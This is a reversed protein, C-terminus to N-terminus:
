NVSFNRKKAGHKSNYYQEMKSNREQTIKVPPKLLDFTTRIKRGLITEAPSLKSPSSENPTIRYNFLFTDLNEDITGDNSLKKLTRKLTDVSREAQGNSMPSYPSTRIHQIGNSNFFRQVCEATFHTGNDSTIIEPLGFRSFSSRLIKLTTSASLSTTRVIEPWKSYADIMLLFYASKLPGAFDIHIRQWPRTPIPWSSLTTKPPLKAAQACQSCSRVFNEIQKDINPWYVYSRALNKMRVIGPHSKHLQHVIQSRFALPIVIRDGFLVIKNSISLLERRNHFIQLETDSTNSFNQWHSAILEILTQMQNDTAYSALLNEFTVPLNQLNTNIVQLIKMELKIPAIVFENDLTTTHQDILRSLVDVYAFAETNVYKIEFNYALLITGWRQLRNATHIPIGKKSGFIALLPKHDTELTFRRGFIFKHFKKVAFILALAEKEIQSYKQETPQLSRSAFAIPRLSTDYMIHQISAGLGKNSADASVVIDLKPNYHTLIM